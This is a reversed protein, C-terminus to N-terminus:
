LLSKYIDMETVPQSFDQIKANLIVKKAVARRDVKYKPLLPKVVKAVDAFGMKNAFYCLSLGCAIGHPIGYEETLPYSIAHCINTQTINIARGSMNAALLMNMRAELDEPSNVAKELNDLGLQLGAYAYNISEPTSKTSWLSELCQSIADLGSALTHEKSLSVSLHPDLVYAQPKFKEDTFTKKKGDVMLVVYRTEESGTGGTTPIVTHKLNYKKAVWKGVDITSGGGRSIIETVGPPVVVNNAYEITPNPPVHQLLFKAM